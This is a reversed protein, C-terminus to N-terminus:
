GARIIYNCVIAPGMNQHALGGGTAQTNTNTNYNSDYAGPGSIFNGGAPGNYPAGGGTDYCATQGHVHGPIQTGNLTVTEAGGAAGLTAGDIGSGATTIRNAATGGMNDRPVAMRGRMDPAKTSGSITGAGYKHVGNKCWLKYLRPYESATIDQGVPFIFWKKGSQPGPVDTEDAWWEMGGGIPMLWARLDNLGRPFSHLGLNM